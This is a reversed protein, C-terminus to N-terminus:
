VEPCIDSPVSIVIKFLYGYEMLNVLANNVIVLLHFPKWQPEAPLSDVQLTSFIFFFFFVGLYGDTSLLIFFSIRCYTVVHIFSSPM